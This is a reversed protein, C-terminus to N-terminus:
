PAVVEVRLVQTDAIAQERLDALALRAPDEMYEALAAESPMELVHVEYPNTSGDITRVRQLVRGGHAALLALVRDEYAVLGAEGGPKPTLLVCLTVTM